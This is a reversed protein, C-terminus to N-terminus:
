YIIIYLTSARAIILDEARDYVLVVVLPDTPELPHSVTGVCVYMCILGLIVPGHLGTWMTYVSIRSRDTRSSSRM